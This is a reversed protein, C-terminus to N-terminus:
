TEEHVQIGWHELPRTFLAVSMLLKLRNAVVRHCVVVLASRHEFFRTDLTAVVERKMGFYIPVSLISIVHLTIPFLVLAFALPGYTARGLPNFYNWSSRAFPSGRDWQYFSLCIGALFSLALITLGAVLIRRRYSSLTNEAESTRLSYDSWNNTVTRCNDKLRWCIQLWNPWSNKHSSPFSANSLITGSMSGQGGSINVSVAVVVTYLLYKM